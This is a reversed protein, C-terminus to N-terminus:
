CDQIPLDLNLWITKLLIRYLTEWLQCHKMCGFSVYACDTDKCLEFRVAAERFANQIMWPMIQAFAQQICDRLVQLNDVETRYVQAGQGIWREPFWNNLYDQVIVVYHCPKGEHQFVYDYSHSLPNNLRIVICLGQSSASSQVVAIQMDLDRGM